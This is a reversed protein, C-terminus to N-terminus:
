PSLSSVFFYTKPHVIGIFKASLINLPNVWAIKSITYEAPLHFADLTKHSFDFIVHLNNHSSFSCHTYCLAPRVICSVALSPFWVKRATRSGPSHPQFCTMTNPRLKRMCAPSSASPFSLLFFLAHISFGSATSWSIPPPVAPFTLCLICVLQVWNVSYNRNRIKWWTEISCSVPSVIYIHQTVTVVRGARLPSIIYLDQIFYIYFVNNNQIYFINTTCLYM